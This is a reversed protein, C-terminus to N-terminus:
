REELEEVPWLNFNFLRWGEPDTETLKRLVETLGEHWETHTLANSVRVGCVDCVHWGGFTQEYTFGDM